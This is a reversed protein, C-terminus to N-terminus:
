PRAQEQVAARGAWGMEAWGMEAPIMNTCSSARALLREDVSLRGGSSWRGMARAQESEKSDMGAPCTIGERAGPSEERPWAAATQSQGCQSIAQQPTACMTPVEPYKTHQTTKTKSTDRSPDYVLHKLTQTQGGRVWPLLCYKREPGSPMRQACM